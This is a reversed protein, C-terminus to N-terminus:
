GKGGGGGVLSGGGELVWYLENVPGSGTWSATEWRFELILPGGSRRVARLLGLWGGETASLGTLLAGHSTATRTHLPNDTWPQHM